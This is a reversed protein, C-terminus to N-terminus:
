YPFPNDDNFQPERATPSRYTFTFRGKGQTLFEDLGAAIPIHKTIEVRMNSIDVAAEPDVSVAANFAPAEGKVMFTRAATFGAFISREQAIFIEVFVMYIAFFIFLAMMAFALEVTAAGKQRKRAFLCAIKKKFGNM